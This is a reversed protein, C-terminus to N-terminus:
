LAIQFSVRNTCSAFKTQLALIPRLRTRIIAAKPLFSATKKMTNVKSNAPLFTKHLTCCANFVGHDITSVSNPIYVSALSTCKNFAWPGIVEVTNPTHISSLNMCTSFASYDITSVSSPIHCYALSPCNYFAFGSITTVSNPINVSALVSCLSFSEREIESVSNPIVVSHFRHKDAVNICNRKIAKPKGNFLLAKTTQGILYKPSKM